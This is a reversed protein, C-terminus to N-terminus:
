QFNKDLAFYLEQIEEEYAPVAKLDIIKKLFVRLEGYYETTTTYNVNSYWKFDNYFENSKDIVNLIMNILAKVDVTNNFTM